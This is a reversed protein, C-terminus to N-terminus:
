MHSVAVSTTRTLVSESLSLLSYRSRAQQLSANTNPNHCPLTVANQYPRGEQSPWKELLLPLQSFYVGSCCYQRSGHQEWVGQTGSPGWLPPVKVIWLRHDNVTSGTGTPDGRLATTKLSGWPTRLGM